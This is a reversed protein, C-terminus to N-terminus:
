PQELTPEYKDANAPHMADDPGYGTEIVSLLWAKPEPKLHGLVLTTVLEAFWEYQDKRSYTTPVWEHQQVQYRDDVEGDTSKLKEYVQHREEVVKKLEAEKAPDVGAFTLSKIDVPVVLEPGRTYMHRYVSQHKLYGEPADIVEVLASPGKKGVIKGKVHYQAGNIWPDFEFVEGKRPLPKRIYKEEELQLYQKNLIKLQRTLVDRKGGEQTRKQRMAWMFKLLVTQSHMGVMKDQVYHGLEHILTHVLNVDAFSKPAVEVLPPNSGIIYHALNSRGVTKGYLAVRINHALPIGAAQYKKEVELLLEGTPQVFAAHQKPYIVNFRGFKQEAMPAVAALYRAVVRISLERTTCTMGGELSLFIRHTPGTYHLPIGM